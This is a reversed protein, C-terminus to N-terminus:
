RLGSGEKNRAAAYAAFDPQWTDPLAAQCSRRISPPVGRQVCQYVIPFAHNRDDAAVFNAARSPLFVEPTGFQSGAHSLVGEAKDYRKSQTYEGALILALPPNAEPGAWAIELHHVAEAQFKANGTKTFQAKRIRYLTLRPQVAPDRPNMLARLATAYAEDLRGAQLLTEAVLSFQRRMLPGGAVSIKFRQYEAERLVRHTRREVSYERAVYYVVDKKRDTASPHSAAVRSLIDSIGGNIAGAFDASSFVPVRGQAAAKREEQAQVARARAERLQREAAARKREQDELRQMVDSIGRPSYGARIMLDAGMLDAEREQERQFAPALVDNLLIDVGVAALAIKNTAAGGAGPVGGENAVGNGILAATAAIHEIGTIMRQQRERAFHDLLIHSLEHGVKFALEDTSECDRVASLGFYLTGDSGSESEFQAVPSDVVFAVRLDPRRGPWNAILRDIIKQIFAAVGKDYIVTQTPLIRSHDILGIYAEGPYRMKVTKDSALAARQKAQESYSIKSPDVDDLFKGKVSNVTSGPTLADLPNQLNSCAASALLVVVAALRLGRARFSVRGM